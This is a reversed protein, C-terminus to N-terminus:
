IINKIAFKITNEFDSVTLWDGYANAQIKCMAHRHKFSAMGNEDKHPNQAAVMLIVEDVKVGSGNLTDYIFKPMKVHGDEHIPNFSGGLLLVTKKTSM